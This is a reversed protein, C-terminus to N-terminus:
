TRRTGRGPRAGQRHHAGDRDDAPRQRRPRICAPRGRRPRGHPAGVVHLAAPLLRGHLRDASKGAADPDLARSGMQALAPRRVEGDGRQGPAPRAGRPPDPHDCAQARRRRECAGGAWGLRRRPDGPHGGHPARARTEQDRSKGSPEHWLWYGPGQVTLADGGHCDRWPFRMGAGHDRHRILEGRNDDETGPRAGGNGRQGALACM